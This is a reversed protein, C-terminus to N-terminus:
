KRRSMKVRKKQPKRRTMARRPKRGGKPLVAGTAVNAALKEGEKNEQSTFTASDGVTLVKNAQEILDKLSVGIEKSTTDEILNKMRAFPRCPSTEKKLRVLAENMYFVYQLRPNAFTSETAAILESRSPTTTTEHGGRLYTLLSKATENEGLERFVIRASDDTAGGSGVRYELAKKLPDKIDVVCRKFEASPPAPKRLFSKEPMRIRDDLIPILKDYAQVLKAYTLNIPEVATM